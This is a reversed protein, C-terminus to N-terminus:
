TRHLIPSRDAIRRRQGPPDSGLSSATAPQRAKERITLVVKVLDHVSGALTDLPVMGACLPGLDMRTDDM